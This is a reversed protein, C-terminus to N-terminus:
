FHCSIALATDELLDKRNSSSGKCLKASNELIYNKAQSFFEPGGNIMDLPENFLSCPALKDLREAL